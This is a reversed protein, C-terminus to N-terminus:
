GISWCELGAIKKLILTADPPNARLKPIDFTKLVEYKRPQKGLNLFEFITEPYNRGERV